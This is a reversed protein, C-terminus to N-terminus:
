AGMPGIVNWRMVELILASIYPLRTRDAFDPLRERGIVEDIERQATQQAAPYICMALFFTTLTAVVKHCGNMLSGPYLPFVSVTDTGGGYIGNSTWKVIDEEYPDLDRELQESTFSSSAVGSKCSPKM